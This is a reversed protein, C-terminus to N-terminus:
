IITIYFRHLVLCLWLILPAVDCHSWIVPSVSKMECYENLCKVSQPKTVRVQVPSM